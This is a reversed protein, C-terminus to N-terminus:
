VTIYIDKYKQFGIQLARHTKSISYYYYPHIPQICPLRISSVLPFITWFNCSFFEDILFIMNMDDEYDVM